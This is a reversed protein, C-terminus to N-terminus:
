EHSRAEMQRAATCDDLQRELEAIHQDKLEVVRRQESDVVTRKGLRGNQIFTGLAVIAAIGAAATPADITLAM